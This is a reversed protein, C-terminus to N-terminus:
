TLCSSLEIKVPEHRWFNRTMISDSDFKDDIQLPERKGALRPAGQSVLEPSVESPSAASAPGQTSRVQIGFESASALCVEIFDKTKLLIVTNAAYSGTNEILDGSKRPSDFASGKNEYVNGCQQAM